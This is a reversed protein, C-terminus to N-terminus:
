GPGGDDAPRPDPLQLQDHGLGMDKEMEVCSAREASTAMRVDTTPCGALLVVTVLSTPLFRVM